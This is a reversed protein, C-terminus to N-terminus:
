NEYVFLQRVVEKDLSDNIIKSIIDWRGNGLGAGILGFKVPLNTEIALKNISIFCQEIANYDTYIIDKRRGYYLQTFASIVILEKNIDTRIIKGLLLNKNYQHKEFFNTYDKYVRPYQHKFQFALGSGMKGQCNVGHVLIGSNNHLLSKKVIEM